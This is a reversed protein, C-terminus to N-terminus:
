LRVSMRKRLFLCCGCLVIRIVLVFKAGDKILLDYSGCLGTAPDFLPEEFKVVTREVREANVGVYRFFSVFLSKSNWISLLVRCAAGCHLRTCHDRFFQAFLFLSRDTRAPRAPLCGHEGYFALMNRISEHMASGSM